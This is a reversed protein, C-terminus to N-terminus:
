LPNSFFAVNIAEAMVKSSIVSFQTKSKNITDPHHMISPAAHWHTQRNEAQATSQL